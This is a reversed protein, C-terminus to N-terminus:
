GGSRGYRSAVRARVTEASKVRAIHWRKCPCEYHEMAWGYGREAARAAAIAEPERRYRDKTPTPCHRLSRREGVAAGWGGDGRFADRLVDSTRWPWRM